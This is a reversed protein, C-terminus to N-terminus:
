DELLAQDFFQIMREEYELPRAKYQGGHSTEPIEWLFKPQEALQYFHLVLDRGHGRGTAIFLIPRPSIEALAEPVGAPIPVGTWISILSSNFRSVWNLLCRQRDKPPPADNATVFGPDDAIIAQIQDYDAAARLAIQGGISFGLVGIREPDVDKQNSIFQIAAGLDGVDQWGFSRENGQSQGHGRLDYLLVGYGYRALVEARSLMESRSSGYGHLLIVAAGNQSPLYWGSLDIDDEENTFIVGQYTIGDEYRPPDGISKPVPKTMILVYFLEILLCALSLGGLLGVGIL